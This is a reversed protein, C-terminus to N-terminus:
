EGGTEATTAAPFFSLTRNGPHLAVNPLAVGCAQWVGCEIMGQVKTWPTFALNEVYNMKKLGNIVLMMVGVMVVLLLVSEVVVQGEQNKLDM